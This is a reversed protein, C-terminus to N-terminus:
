LAAKQALLAKTALKFSAFTRKLKCNDDTTTQNNLKKGIALYYM